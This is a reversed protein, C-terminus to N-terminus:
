IAVSMQVSYWCKIFGSLDTKAFGNGLHLYNGSLEDTLLIRCRIEMIEFAKAYTM